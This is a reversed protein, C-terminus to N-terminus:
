AHVVAVAADGRHPGAALVDDHEDLLRGGRGAAAVGAEVVVGQRELLAALHRAGDLAEGAGLRTYLAGRVVADGLRDVQAVGVDLHVRDGAVQRVEHPADFGLLRARLGAGADDDAVHVQM